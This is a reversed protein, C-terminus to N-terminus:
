TRRTSFLQFMSTFKHSHGVVLMTCVILAWLAFMITNGWAAYVTPPLSKPLQSDFVGKENLDLRGLVRGYPGIVGSIGNNASRILPVGEEVARVRNQHFHQPPGTTNGFWGDNTVNILVGPREEGQVIQGPFIAEYCILPSVPPLGPITMLPRPSMGTSFGGRVRTLSQLGIAELTSQLPLYEGFPVLHLKDYLAILGGGFGFVMMSNYARRQGPTSRYIDTTGTAQTVRLAGSILYTGQPLIQGIATLAEPTSLPLFPMAAEPWVVHSIGELDDREGSSNTKSLSLHTRFIEGQKEALWKERQLTSPQVVRIKVNPLMDPTPQALRWVGYAYIAILPIVAMALGAWAQRRGNAQAPNGASPGHEPSIPASPGAALGVIPAALAAVTVLTLGYVGILSASQMFSLPSTLAYGLINWPFGTFVHGRAFEAVSLALALIVVRGVGDTWFAKATASAAAWFLALGAPMLTVAFPLLIGFIEAEVLFAEGIWFLGFFFYGFGFAWGDKAAPVLARARSKLDPADSLRTPSAGDLLWVLVPLTLFLIPWLFFPAMALVSLSGAAIAIGFRMWGASNRISTAIAALRMFIAKRM